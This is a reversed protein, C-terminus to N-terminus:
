TLVSYDSYRSVESGLKSALPSYGRTPIAFLNDFATGLESSVMAVERRKAERMVLFRTSPVSLNSAM